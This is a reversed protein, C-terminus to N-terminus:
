RQKSRQIFTKYQSHLSFIAENSIYSLMGYVVMLDRYALMKLDFM